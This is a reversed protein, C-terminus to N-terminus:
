VVIKGVARVASEIAAYLASGSRKARMWGCNRVGVHDVMPIPMTEAAKKRRIVHTLGLMREASMPAM